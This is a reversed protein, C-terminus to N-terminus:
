NICVLCKFVSFVTMVKPKGRSVDLLAKSTRQLQTHVGKQQQVGKSSYILMDCKINILKKKDSFANEIDDGEILFCRARKIGREIGLINKNRDGTRRGVSTLASYVSFMNPVM